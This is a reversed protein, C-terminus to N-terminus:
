KKYRLLHFNHKAGKLGLATFARSMEAHTRSEAESWTMGTDYLTRMRELAKARIADRRHSLPEEDPTQPPKHMWLDIEVANRKGADWFAGIAAHIRESYEDQCLVPKGEYPILKAFDSFHRRAAALHGTPHFMALRDLLTM